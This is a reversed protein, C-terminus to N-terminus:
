HGAGALFCVFFMFLHIDFYWVISDASLMSCCTIRKCVGMLIVALIGIDYQKQKVFCAARKKVIQQELSQVTYLVFVEVILRTWLKLVDYVKAFNRRM